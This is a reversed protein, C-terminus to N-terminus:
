YRRHCNFALSMARGTCVYVLLRTLVYMAVRTTRAIVAYKKRLIHVRHFLRNAFGSVRALECSWPPYTTDTKFRDIEVRYHV